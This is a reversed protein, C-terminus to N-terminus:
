LASATGRDLGTFKGFKILSQSGVKMLHRHAHDALLDEGICALRM